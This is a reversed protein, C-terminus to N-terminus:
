NPNDEPKEPEPEPEAEPTPETALLREDLADLASFFGDYEAAFEEVKALMVRMADDAQASVHDYAAQVSGAHAVRETVDKEVAAEDTAHNRFLLLEILDEDDVDELMEMLEDDDIKAM